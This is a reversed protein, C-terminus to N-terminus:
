RWSIERHGAPMLAPDLAGARHLVNKVNWTHTLENGPALVVHHPGIHADVHELVRIDHVRPETFPTWTADSRAGGHDDPDLELLELLRDIDWDWEHAACVASGYAIAAAKRYDATIQRLLDVADDVNAEWWHGANGLGGVFEARVKRADVPWGYHAFEAHGHADVLVTPCGSLIAQLPMLGCGEGRALALFIHARDFLHQEDAFRPVLRIRPDDLRVGKPVDGDARLWLEAPPGGDFAALFATIALDLGKRTWGRGGALVVLPGEPVSRESPTWRTTDVGLRMLRVDHHRESFAELNAQCPVLVRDFHDFYGDFADPLRDTEWMTWMISRQHSWWGPIGAPNTCVLRTSADETLQVGRAELRRASEFGVQGYGSGPEGNRFFDLRM